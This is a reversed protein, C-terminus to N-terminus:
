AQVRENEERSYRPVRWAEPARPLFLKKTWYGCVWAAEERTGYFQLRSPDHTYNKVQLLKVEWPFINKTNGDDLYDDVVLMFDGGRMAVDVADGPFNRTQVQV